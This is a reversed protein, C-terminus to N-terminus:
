RRVSEIDWDNVYFYKSSRNFQFGSGDRHVERNGHYANDSIAFEEGTEVNQLSRGAIRWKKPTRVLSKPQQSDAVVQKQTPQASDWEEPGVYVNCVWTGHADQTVRFCSGRANPQMFVAAHVMRLGFEDAEAKTQLIKTIEPKVAGSDITEVLRQADARAERFLSTRSVNPTQIFGEPLLSQSFTFSNAPILMDGEHGAETGPLPPWKMYVSGADDFRWMGRLFADSKRFTAIAIWGKGSDHYLTTLVILGKGHEMTAVIETPRIGAAAPITGILEKNRRFLNSLFGM